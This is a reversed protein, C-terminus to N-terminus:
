YLPSLGREIKIRIAQRAGHTDHQRRVVNGEVNEPSIGGVIEGSVRSM